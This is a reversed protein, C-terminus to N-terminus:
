TASLGAPSRGVRGVIWRGGGPSGSRAVEPGDHDVSCGDARGAGAGCRAQSNPPPFCHSRQPRRDPWLELLVPGRLFRRTAASATPEKVSLAATPASGVSSRNYPFSQTSQSFKASTRHLIEVCVTPKGEFDHLNRSTHLLCRLYGSARAYCLPLGLFLLPFTGTILLTSASRIHIM